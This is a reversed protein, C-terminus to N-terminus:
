EVVKEQMLREIGKILLDAEMYGNAVQFLQENLLLVTAPFGRVGLEQSYTFM